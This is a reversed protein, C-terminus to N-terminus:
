PSDAGARALRSAAALLNARQPDLWAAHRALAAAARRDGRAARVGALLLWSEADAPRLRLEDALAAEARELRLARVQPSPSSWAQRVDERAALPSRAPLALTAALLAAAALALAATRRRSLSARRAGAGAAAAAAALAALAANSPIRLDFDFASHIALAVLAAAAGRAVGGGLGGREARAVPACCRWAAGCLALALGALGTEGLTELYESEAHEVRLAGNARKARPFADHFAGLGHGVLPSAGALRLADRWTTVRFEAGDLSRLRDRAVAARARRRADRRAGGARPRLLAARPRLPGRALLLTALCAGGGALALAGGRSLSALVALAMALAAIAALVM